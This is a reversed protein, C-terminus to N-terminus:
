TPSEVIKKRKRLRLEEQKKLVELQEAEERELKKENEKMKKM